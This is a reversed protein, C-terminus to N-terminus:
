GSKDNAMKEVMWTVAADWGRRYDVSRLHARRGTLDANSCSLRAAGLLQRMLHLHEEDDPSRIGEEYQKIRRELEKITLRDSEPRPM